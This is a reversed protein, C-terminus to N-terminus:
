CADAGARGGAVESLGPLDLLVVRQGRAEALGARRFEGMVKSVAERTSAVMGALERHPLRLGIGVAGPPGDEAEEGFREALRLLLAALRASVERPALIAALEESRRARESYAGLLALAAEPKRRVLWEAAAKRVAVVTAETAAEAFDERRGRGSLDPGGLLGGDKLVDTTVEKLGGGYTAYVRVVGSVVFLLRDDPDGPSWLAEGAGCRRESTRLGAAGIERLLLADPPPAGVAPGAPADGTGGRRAAGRATGRAAGNKPGLPGADLPTTLVGALALAYLGAALAPRRYLGETGRAIVELISRM